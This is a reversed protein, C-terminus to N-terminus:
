NSGLREMDRLLADSNVPRGLFERLVERSPKELGWRYLRDSLWEYSKRDGDWFPGRQSMTRARLDATIIAGLAYNMMYGPLDVLQGRMAWWSLEPHPVLHLYTSTIAAWLANPDRDPAAHMRLEFLAWAVDMAIGSYRARMSEATTASDGLYKKQWRPETADLAILDGLAETFPDSDPWDAYAPRTHIAAIHVAHGMEHLLEGLNDVGGVRYTAFIWPEARTWHGAHVRPHSGFDTFAVPTKGERPDLDYHVDLARPDAGLDTYFRDTIPRLDGRRVRSAFRRAFAGNAYWWNWPEISRAATHDRWASLIRVLVTDLQSPDIGLSRAQRAVYSGEVSSQWEGASLPILARYPSGADDNGNMARWMPELAMFYSKRTEENELTGLKELVSLRDLTDHGVAIRRAARGYCAYIRTSLAERTSWARPNYSCSATEPTVATSADVSGDRLTEEMVQLVRADTADVRQSDLSAMAELLMGREVMYTRRLDILPNGSTSREVGRAEAVRIQAYLDRADAYRQELQLTRERTGPARPAGAM